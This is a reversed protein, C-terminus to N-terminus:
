GKRCAFEWLAQDITGPRVPLWHDKDVYGGAPRRTGMHGLFETFALLRLRKGACDFQKHTKTSLFRHTGRGNGQAWKWDVLIVMTVLHGERRITASDIYVTQLGPSQYEKDIEVWQAYVSGSSLLLLTILSGFGSCSALCRILFLGANSSVSGQVPFRGSPRTRFAM